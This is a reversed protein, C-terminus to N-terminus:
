LNCLGNVCTGGCLNGCGGCHQWDNWIDACEGGCCIGFPCVSFCGGCHFPNWFIDVCQGACCLLGAPCSHGCAGCHGNDAFLDVCRGDCDTLGAECIPGPRVCTGNRCIGGLPCSRFCAGCHGAHSTLNVCASGCATQGAPCGAPPPGEGPCVFGINTVDTCRTTLSVGDFCCLAAFNGQCCEADANCRAGVLGCRGCYGDANCPQGSCCGGSGVPACGFGDTVCDCINDENCWGLCCIGDDCSQGPQICPQAARVIAGGRRALLGGLVGGALMRLAARRNPSRTVAATWRDFTRADM